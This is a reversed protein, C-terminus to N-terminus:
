SAACFYMIFIFSYSLIYEQDGWLWSDVHFRILEAHYKRLNFTLDSANAM